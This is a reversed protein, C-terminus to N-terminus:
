TQGTSLASKRGVLGEPRFLMLLVMLLGYLAEQARARDIGIDDVFRFLEPFLVLVAPGVIAGSITKSGGVFVMAVPNHGLRYPIQEIPGDLKIVLEHLHTQALVVNGDHDVDHRRQRAGLRGRCRM